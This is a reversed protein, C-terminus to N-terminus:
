FERPCHERAEVLPRDAVGLPQHVRAQRRIGLDAGAPIGADSREAPGGHLVSDLGQCRNAEVPRAVSFGPKIEVQTLQGRAAECLGQNECLILGMYRSLLALANDWRTSASAVFALIGTATQM